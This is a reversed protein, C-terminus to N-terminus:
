RLLVLNGAVIHTTRLVDLVLVSCVALPVGARAWNWRWPAFALALLAAILAGNWALEALPVAWLPMGHRMLLVPWRGVEVLDPRSIALATTLGDGVVLAAYVVVLGILLIRMTGM